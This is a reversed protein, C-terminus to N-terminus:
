PGPASLAFRAACRNCRYAGKIVSGLCHTASMAAFRGTGPLFTTARIRYLGIRGHRRQLVAAILVEDAQLVPRNFHRGPLGARSSGSGVMNLRMDGPIRMAARAVATSNPADACAVSM